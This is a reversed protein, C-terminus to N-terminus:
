PISMEERMKRERKQIKKEIKRRREEDKQKQERSKKEYETEFGRRLVEVDVVKETDEYATNMAEILVDLIM